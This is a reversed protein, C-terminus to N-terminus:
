LEKLWYSAILIRALSSLVGGGGGGVGEGVGGQLGGVGGFCGWLLVRREAQLAYALPVTALQRVRRYRVRVVVRLVVHGSVLRLDGRPM